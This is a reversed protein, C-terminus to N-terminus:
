TVEGGEGGAGGLPGFFLFIDPTKGIKEKQRAGRLDDHSYDICKVGRVRALHTSTQFVQISGHTSQLRDGLLVMGHAAVELLVLWRGVYTSRGVFVSVYARTAM